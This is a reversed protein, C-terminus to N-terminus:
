KPGKQVGISVLVVVAVILNLRGSSCSIQHGDGGRVSCFTAAQTGGSSGRGPGCLMAACLPAAPSRPKGFSPRNCSERARVAKDDKRMFAVGSHSQTYEIFEELVKMRSPRGAIRDHASVSMM